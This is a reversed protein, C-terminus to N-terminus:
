AAGAAARTQGVESVRVRENAEGGSAAERDVLWLAGQAGVGAAVRRELLSWTGARRTRPRCRADREM